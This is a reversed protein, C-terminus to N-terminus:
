FQLHIPVHYINSKTQQQMQVLQPVQVTDLIRIGALEESDKSIILGRAWEAVRQMRGCKKSWEWWFEWGFCQWMMHKQLLIHCLSLGWSRSILRIFFRIFLIVNFFFKHSRSSSIVGQLYTAAASAVWPSRKLQHSRTGRFTATAEHLERKRNKESKTTLFLLLSFLYPIFMYWCTYVTNKEINKLMNPVLIYGSVFLHTCTKENHGPDSHEGRMRPDWVQGQVRPWLILFLFVFFFFFFVNKFWVNHKWFLKLINWFIDLMTSLLTPSHQFRWWPFASFHAVVRCRCRVANSSSNLTLSSKCKMWLKQWLSCILWQQSWLSRKTQKTHAFCWRQTKNPFCLTENRAEVTKEQRIVDRKRTLSHHQWHDTLDKHSDPVVHSSRSVSWPFWSVRSLFHFLITSNAKSKKEPPEVIQSNSM